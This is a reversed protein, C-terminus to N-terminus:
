KLEEPFKPLSQWYLLKESDLLSWAIAYHVVRYHHTIIGLSEHELYCLYSGSKEPKIDPYKNWKTQEFMSQQGLKYCEDFLNLLHAQVIEIITSHTQKIKELKQDPM